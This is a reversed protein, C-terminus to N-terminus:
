EFNFGGTTANFDIAFSQAPALEVETRREYDFGDARDGDRLRAVVTHRGSPVEFEAYVRSPGDGHLGTPPLVERFATEGDIEIEVLVAVRERPCVLQKRMNPALKALEAADRQRCDGKPAGGHAFGLKIQAHDPPLHTYSPAASFYGLLLALGAYFVAQGPNRLLRTM